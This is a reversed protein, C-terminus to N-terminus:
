RADFLYFIISYRKIRLEKKKKYSVYNLFDLKKEKSIIM